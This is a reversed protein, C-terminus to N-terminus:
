PSALAEQEDDGFVDLAFGQRRKDDVLQAAAELNRRDLGRPKAIAALRHEFVDRDEVAPVM